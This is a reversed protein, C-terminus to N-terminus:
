LFLFRKNSGISEAMNNTYSFIIIGLLEMLSGKDKDPMLEARVLGSSYPSRLVFMLGLGPGLCSWAYM